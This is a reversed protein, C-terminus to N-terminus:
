IQKSQLHFDWQCDCRVRLCSLDCLRCTGNCLSFEPGKTWCKNLTYLCYSGLCYTCAWSGPDRLLAGWVVSGGDLPTWHQLGVSVSVFFSPRRTHGWLQSCGEQGSTMTAGHNDKGHAMCCSTLSHYVQSFLCLSVENGTKWRQPFSGQYSSKLITADVM